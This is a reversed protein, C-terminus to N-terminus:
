NAFALGAMGSLIRLINYNTAYIFVKANKPCFISCYRSNNKSMNSVFWLNLQATDIRSFNCTCSPQHQEPNLAFSFVNIPSSPTNTHRLLPEVTDYWKSSRKSQRAQGNLQLEVETIPNITGDILLGFNDHQWVIIDFNKVYRNRNDVCFDDLPVSLDSISIDNRTIKEVRPYIETGNSHISIIGEVLNRLDGDKNSLLPTENSLVAILRGDGFMSATTSDYFNYRPEFSPDTPDVLIYEATGDYYSSGANGADFETFNGLDDLSYQSLLLLKAAEKRALEWDHHHYVMFRGGLYNSMKTVWYLAKVPHNFNLKSKHSSSSVSEEGTFQLQEILYEHSYQAFKKRETTDLFVYNIYLSSDEIDLCKRNSAEIFSKSAVYCQEIQRFKVYIKVQHYQLAILPLALGNNRCFYFQLPVYLTYSNKLVNQEPQDSSLRSISTLEPVNGLLVDMGTKHGVPLSLEQWIRLWLGYHKDIQTGGIELETEDVIAHGPNKVWGFAVSNIKMFDSGTYKVEPLTVKLFIQTILDGNRSVEAACKKGFSTPGSFYQEISENAFNTYRRHGIKHFTIQPNGTLYVDQAGYAVIQLLGGAM